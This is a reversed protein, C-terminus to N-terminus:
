RAGLWIPTWNPLLMKLQPRWHCSPNLFDSDMWIDPLAQNEWNFVEEVNGADYRLARGWSWHKGPWLAKDWFLFVANQMTVVAEYEFIICSRWYNITKHDNYQRIQIKLDCGKFAISEMMFNYILAIKEIAPPPQLTIWPSDFLWPSMSHGTGIMEPSKISQQEKPRRSYM